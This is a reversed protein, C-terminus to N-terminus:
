YTKLGNLVMQQYHKLCKGRGYLNNADFYQIYSSEKNKNYNKKYKNNAKEYRHIARCMGGRIGKGVILLM